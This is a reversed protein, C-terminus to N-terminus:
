SEDFGPWMAAVLLGAISALIRHLQWLHCHLFVEPGRQPKKAV